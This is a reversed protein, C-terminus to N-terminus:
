DPVGLTILSGQPCGRVRTFWPALLGPKARRSQGRVGAEGVRERQSPKIDKVRKASLVKSEPIGSYVTKVRVRCPSQTILRGQPCARM